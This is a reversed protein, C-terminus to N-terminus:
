KKDGNNNKKINKEYDDLLDLVIYILCGGFIIFLLCLDM